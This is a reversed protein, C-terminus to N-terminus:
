CDYNEKNKMERNVKIVKNEKMNKMNMSKMNKIVKKINNEEEKLILSSPEVKLRKSLIKLEMLMLQLWNEKM